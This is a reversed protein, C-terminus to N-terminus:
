RGAAQTSASAARCELEPVAGGRLAGGKEGGRPSFTGGSPASSPSETAGTQRGADWAPQLWHALSQATRGVLPLM